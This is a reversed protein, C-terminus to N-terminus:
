IMYRLKDMMLPIEEKSIGSALLQPVDQDFAKYFDDDDLRFLQVSKAYLQLADNRKQQSWAVHGANLYDLKTPKQEIIKAYYNEAQRFKGSLFSCWAIARWVKPTSTALEVKFYYNLAEAYRKEQVFLHGIQLQINRNEPDLVEARKYYDLAEDYNRLMKNCFAIKRTLWLQEPLLAEARLYYELAQGFDATQQRCYGMKQFLGADVDAKSLKEFLAFAEGYYGKAFYYEAIQLQQEESLDLMDFFWCSHFRLAWNFVPMFDNRYAFLKFFRYLDQIYQNSVQREYTETEMNLDSKKLEDIQEAELKFAQMMSKRQSEAIQKMSIALSYKDSNCLYANNLLLQMMQNNEAFLDVVTSHGTDFPLFWNPLENFFPYHKLQAFTNMYVDAGELQLESMERLKDGVGSKEILDQWEPNKDEWEEASSMNDFDIKDKVQPALKMMEPLIEQQMKQSIKDTESTRAFQIIITVLAKAFKPDDSLLALRQRIGDYFPLRANYIALALALGVLARLRVEPQKHMCADALLGIREANFQRVLNLTLASIAFSKDVPDITDSALLLKFSDADVEQILWLSRFMELRTQEHLAIQEKRNSQQNLGEEILFAVVKNTSQEELSHVIARLSRLQSRYYRIQSYDYGSSFKTFLEERITDTLLFAKKVLNHYVLERQPDNVGDVAYQLMLRYNNELEDVSDVYELLHVDQLWSRLADIAQKLRRNKLHVLIQTATNQMETITM